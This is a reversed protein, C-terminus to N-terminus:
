SCLERSDKIIERKVTAVASNQVDTISGGVEIYSVDKENPEPEELTMMQSKVMSDKMFHDKRARVRKLLTQENAHLYIFHVQVDSNNYAAIRIVDRYRHRLASCALIVGPTGDELAAVAEDRLRILWEWRDQDTLPIGAAM